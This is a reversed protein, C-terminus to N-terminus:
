EPKKGILTKYSLPGELREDTQQVEVFGASRMQDLCVTWTTNVYVEKDFTQAVDKVGFNITGGPRLIRKMETLYINLPDLFYIVNFGFIVDVSNDPIFDLSKADNGHISLVGSEVAIAFEEDAALGKRFADSIEIGYVRSPKLSSLM